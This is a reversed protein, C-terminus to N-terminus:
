FLVPNLLETVKLVNISSYAVYYCRSLHGEISSFTPVICQYFRTSKNKDIYQEYRLDDFNKSKFHKQLPAVLYM